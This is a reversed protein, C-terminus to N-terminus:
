TRDPPGHITRAPDYPPPVPDCGRHLELLQLRLECLDAGGPQSRRRRDGRRAGHGEAPQHLREPPGPPHQPCSASRAAMAQSRHVSNLGARYVESVYASYSLVLATTGYVALSQTSLFRISLAPVGFGVIYIVLLLPVGRFIDVYVTSLIRLPFLVPGTSQRLVAIVLALILILVEAALFMKINLLLAYGIGPLGKSPNGIFSHWM